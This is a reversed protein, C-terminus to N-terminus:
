GMGLLDEIRVGVQSGAGDFSSGTMRADFRARVLPYAQAPLPIYGVDQVVSAVTDLYFRVFPAIEPGVSASTAVYLFVLRSLPQYTGDGVTVVSPAIPGDGNDARGDDVAVLRLGHASEVYHAFGFFGLAHIDSAVGQVLVHDDESATYDGRSAHETGVIAQTFYDYTGSDVGAGFLHIEADPWGARLDSWRTATGQAAPAWLRALEDVTLHDVWDAAPNVVIAIGDYAIPLEVFDVGGAECTAIEGASIPRSAGTIAVEGKCFKKFGGGTGSTGIAVRGPGRRGYEEAVAESIPYVTSSGDVVVIGGTGAPVTCGAACALTLLPAV